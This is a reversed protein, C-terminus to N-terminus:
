KSHQMLRTGADLSGALRRASEAQQIGAPLAASRGGSVAAGAAHAQPQPPVLRRVGRDPRHAVGRGRAALAAPSSSSPIAGFSNPVTHSHLHPRLYAHPRGSPCLSSHMGAICEMWLAALTSCLSSLEVWPSVPSCPSSPGYSHRSLKHTSPGVVGSSAAPASPAPLHPEATRKRHPPPALSGATTSHLQLCSRGGRPLDAPSLRCDVLASTNITPLFDDEDKRAATASWGVSPPLHPLCARHHSAFLAWPSGLTSTM